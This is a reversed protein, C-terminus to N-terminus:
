GDVELAGSEFKGIWKDRCSFVAEFVEACGCPMTISFRVESQRLSVLQWPRSRTAPPWSITVTRATGGSDRAGSGGVSYGALAEDSRCATAAASSSPWNASEDADADDVQNRDAANRRGPSHQCTPRTIQNIAIQINVNYVVKSNM